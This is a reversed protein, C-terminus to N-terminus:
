RELLREESPVSPEALEDDIERPVLVPNVVIAPLMSAM